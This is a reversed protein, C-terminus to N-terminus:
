RLQQPCRAVPTGVAVCIGEVQLFGDEEYYRKQDETLFM